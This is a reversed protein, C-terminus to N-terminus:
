YIYNKLLDWTNKYVKAPEKFYTSMTYELTFHGEYGNKNFEKFDAGPISEGDGWALHGPFGKKHDMYHCHNVRKGFTDFYQQISEGANTITDLDITITLMNSNVEDVMRKMDHITNVLTTSQPSLTEMTLYVGYKEAFKCLQGVMEVSRKWANERPESFFQWGSTILVKSCELESAALIVNQFYARTRKILEPNKSAMNYPKPCTQEPTICIVSLGYEKLKEKIPKTEQYSCHDVLYHAGCTWLDISKYGIESVTKFYDDLEYFRYIHNMPAIKDLSVCEMNTVM